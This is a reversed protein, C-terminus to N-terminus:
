LRFIHVLKKITKLYFLFTRATLSKNCISNNDTITNAFIVTDAFVIINNNM